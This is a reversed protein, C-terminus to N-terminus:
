AADRSAKARYASALGTLVRLEERRNEIETDPRKKPGHSFSEIWTQKGYVLGDLVRPVDANSLSSDNM